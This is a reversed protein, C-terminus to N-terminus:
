GAGEPEAVPPSGMVRAGFGRWVWPRLVLDHLYSWGLYVWGMPLESFVILYMLLAGFWGKVFVHLCLEALNTEALAAQDVEAGQGQRINFMEAARLAVVCMLLSAVQGGPMSFLIQALFFLAVLLLWAALLLLLLLLGDEDGVNGALNLVDGLDLYKLFAFSTSLFGVDRITIARFMAVFGWVGLSLGIFSKALMRFDGRGAPRRKLYVALWLGYAALSDLLIGVICVGADWFGSWLGAAMLGHVLTAMFAAAL